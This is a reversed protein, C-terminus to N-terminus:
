SVLTEQWVLSAGGDVLLSQGTIFSAKDGLLFFIAEAVERATGMRKLASARSLRQCLEPQQAYYGENEPKVFTAPCVANVRVGKEGLTVAFYRAIQCLGAKAVHYSCPLKPSIFSANVSSVLVVSCPQTLDFAPVCNELFGRAGSLSTAVEGEWDDGAGRFRQFFVMHHLPGREGVVRALLGGIQDSQSVDFPYYGDPRPTPVTRGLLTVRWGLNGAMQAFVKGLGRSGGVVLAHAATM